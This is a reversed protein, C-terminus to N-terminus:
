DRGRASAVMLVKIVLIFIGISPILPILYQTTEKTQNYMDIWEQTMSGNTLNNEMVTFVSGLIMPAITFM